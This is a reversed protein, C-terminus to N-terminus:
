MRGTAMNNFMPHQPKITKYYKFANYLLGNTKHYGTINGKKNRPATESFTKFREIMDHLMNEPINKDIMYRKLDVKNVNNNVMYEPDKLPLTNLQSLKLQKKNEPIEMHEDWGKSTFNHSQLPMSPKMSQSKRSSLKSRPVSKTKSLSKSKSVSKTKSLSKSKSKSKSKTGCQIRKKDIIIQLRQRKQDLDNMQNELDKLMDECAKLTLNHSM